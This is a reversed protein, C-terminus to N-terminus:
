KSTFEQKSPKFSDEEMHKSINKHPHISKQYDLCKTNVYYKLEVGEGGGGGGGGLSPLICYQHVPHSHSHVVMRGSKMVVPTSLRLLSSLFVVVVCELIFIKLSLVSQVKIFLKLLQALSALGVSVLIM